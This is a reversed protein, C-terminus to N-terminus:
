SGPGKSPPLRLHVASAVEELAESRKKCDLTEIETESHRHLIKESTRSHLRMERNNFAM